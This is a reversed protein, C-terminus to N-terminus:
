DPVLSAGSSLTQLYVGQQDTVSYGGTLLTLLLNIFVYGPSHFSRQSLFHCGYALYASKTVDSHRPLLEPAKILPWGVDAFLSFVLQFVDM